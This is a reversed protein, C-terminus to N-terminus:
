RPAIGVLSSGVPEAFELGLHRLRRALKRQTPDLRIQLHACGSQSALAAASDLLAEVPALSNGVDVVTFLPIALVSGGSLSREIRSAFLGCLSGTSDFMVDIKTPAQRYRFEDAYEQWAALEVKPWTARLLPLAQPLTTQTLDEVRFSPSM